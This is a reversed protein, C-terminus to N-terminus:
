SIKAYPGFQGRTGIKLGLYLLDTWFEADDPKSNFNNLADYWFNLAGLKGIAARKDKEYVKLVFNYYM